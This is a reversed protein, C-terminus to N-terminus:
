TDDLGIGKGIPVSVGERYHLDISYLRGRSNRDLAKLIFSSSVGNAVGTEVVVEPKLARVMAYLLIGAEYSISGGIPGAQQLCRNIHKIFNSRELEILETMIDEQHNTIIEIAKEFHLSYKEYESLRSSHRESHWVEFPRLIARTILYPHRLYRIKLLLRRFDM